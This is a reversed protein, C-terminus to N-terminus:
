YHDKIKFTKIFGDIVDRVAKQDPESMNRLDVLKTQRGMSLASKHEHSVLYVFDEICEISFKEPSNM